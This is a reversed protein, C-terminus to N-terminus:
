SPSPNYSYTPDRVLLVHLAESVIKNTIRFEKGRIWTSFIHSGSYDSEISLNAYFEKILLAPPPVLNQCLPLWGRYELNRCIPAELEDLHIEREGCISKFKILKEYKEFSASTQFRTPEHEVLQSSSGSVCKVKKKINRSKKSAMSVLSHSVFCFMSSLVSQM